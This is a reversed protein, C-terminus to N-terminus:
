AWNKSLFLMYKYYSDAEKESQTYDYFKVDDIQGDFSNSEIEGIKGENLPYYVPFVTQSPNEAVFLLLVCLLILIVNRM